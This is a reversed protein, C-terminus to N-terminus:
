SKDQSKKGSEPADKLLQDIVAKLSELDTNAMWVGNVFLQPTESFGLSRGEAIDEFIQAYVAKSVIAKKMRTLDVGISAAIADLAKEREAPQMKGLKSQDQFVDHAFRLAKKNDQSVIAEFRLSAPISLDNGELPYHKMLVRVKDGYMKVLQSTTESATKCHGCQFDLFEVITIPALKPGVYARDPQLDISYRKQFSQEQRKEHRAQQEKLKEALAVSRIEGCTKPALANETGKRACACALVLALLGVM